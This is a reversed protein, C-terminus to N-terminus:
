EALIIRSPEANAPEPNLPRLEPQPFPWPGDDADVKRPFVIQDVTDLEHKHSRTKLDDMLNGCWTRNGVHEFRADALCWIDGGLGVWRRCFMYDEGHYAGDAMGTDFLAYHDYERDVDQYALDPFAAQMVEITKRDICMFGTGLRTAAVFGDPRSIMMGNKDPKLYVTYEMPDKKMPYAAGRVGGPAILVKCFDIANWGMDSDIFFLCDADSAMFAGVIRNRAQAILSMGVVYDVTLLIGNQQLVLATQVLSRCFQVSVNAHCPVGLYVHIPKRPDPQRNKNRHSM